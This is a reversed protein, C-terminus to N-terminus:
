LRASAAALADEAGQLGALRENVWREDDALTTRSADV